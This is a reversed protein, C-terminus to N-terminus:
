SWMLQALTFHHLVTHCAVTINGIQLLLFVKNLICKEIFLKGETCPEVLNHRCYVETDNDNDESWIWVAKEDISGIDGWPLTLDSNAGYSTATPWDDDRYTRMSWGYRASTVCKWSTDTVLGNEFSGLIGGKWPPTSGKCHLAVVHSGAMIEFVLFGKSSANAAGGGLHKGDM